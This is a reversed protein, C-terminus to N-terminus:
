ITRPEGKALLTRISTALSALSFPKQLFDVGDPLQEPMSDTYGSIFLVAAGPKLARFEEAIVTGPEGPMVVDAILLDISALYKRMLPRCEEANGAALVTYGLQRLANRLMARVSAEDEVILVTETGGQAVPRAPAATEEDDATCPPLYISFTSGRGPASEVDIYGGSQRIIGYVTSLGLGSGRGLEKTTFFPEFIRTQTNQDMGHGTDSVELLVYRGAPVSPRHRADPIDLDVNATRITVAGGHPMSDRANLVLNLIVQHIQGPDAKVQGLGVTLVTRLEIHEGITSRLMTELELVAANLDVLKPQLMQRRSFALLQTTLDANREAAKLIAEIRPRQPHAPGIDSLILHCYGLIVSLMNNFDHAVGGALLGVAELKQAQRLKEELERRETIDRFIGFTGAFNGQSDFQPTATVLLTRTEGDPRVIDMEYSSREGARRLGTQSLVVAYQDDTTFESLCRGVLQGQPVGFVAEGAPNCFVFREDVDVIGLGEGQCQVLTRYREESRRLAEEVRRRDTVDINAGLIGTIEGAAIVPAVIQYYCRPNGEHVYEIDGTVVEGSFARSNTELWAKLIDGAVGLAQPRKGVANGWHEVSAPSQMIYVGNRDTMWFDFPMNAFVAELRAQAHLLSEGTRDPESLEHHVLVAHAIEGQEERVPSLTWEGLYITGDARRTNVQGRWSRGAAVADRLERCLVGAGGCELESVHRGSVRDPECGTIQAFAANAWRIVGDRDTIVVGTATKQLAAILLRVNPGAVAGADMANIM